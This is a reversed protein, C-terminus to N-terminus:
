ASSRPNTRREQYTDNLRERLTKGSEPKFDLQNDTLVGLAITRWAKLEQIEARLEDIQAYLGWVNCRGM